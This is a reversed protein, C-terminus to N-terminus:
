PNNGNRDFIHACLDQHRIEGSTAAEIKLAALLSPHGVGKIWRHVAPQTVGALRALAVQSGAIRLAKHIADDNRM